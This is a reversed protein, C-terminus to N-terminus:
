IATPVAVQAGSVSLRPVGLAILDGVLGVPEHRVEFATARIVSRTATTLGRHRAVDEGYSLVDVHFAGDVELVLVRGDPLDWEADTYRWRGGRDRRRRQRVPVALGWRRCLRVVDVEALSQSGGSLDALLARLDAARRLPRLTRVWPTLREATTLRQQVCAAVAGLATRVSPETSAFLLVAPELRARAPGGGPHRLVDVSRRTRVFRVGPVPDFSLDHEVYVAVDDREWGHLGHLGAATLGGLLSLPGAHAVAVHLLQDRSLPGTTTTLVAHTREAWRGARLQNRVFARPVRLERLDRESLVGAQRAAREQWTEGVFSLRTPLRSRGSFNEV